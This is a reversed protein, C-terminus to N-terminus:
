PELIFKMLHEIDEVRCEGHGRKIRRQMKEDVDLCIRVANRQQQSLCRRAVKRLMDEETWSRTNGGDKLIYRKEGDEELCVEVDLGIALETLTNALLLFPRDLIALKRYVNQSGALFPELVSCTLETRESASSTYYTVHHIRHISLDTMWKSRALLITWNILGVSSRARNLEGKKWELASPTKSFLLPAKHLQGPIWQVSEDSFADLSDESDNHEPFTLAEVSLATRPTSSESVFRAKIDLDQNFCSVCHSCARAEEDEPIDLILHWICEIDTSQQELVRDMFDSFDQARARRRPFTAVDDAITLGLDEKGQMEFYLLRSFKVLSSVKEKISCINENLVKSGSIAFGVRKATGLNEALRQQCHQEWTRWDEPSPSPQSNATQVEIGKGYIQGEIEAYGRRIREFRTLIESYGECGWFEQYDEEQFKVGEPCWTAIWSKMQSRCESMQHCYWELREHCEIFERGRDDLKKVAKMLLRLSDASTSFPNASHLFAM